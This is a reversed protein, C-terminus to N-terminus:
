GLLAANKKGRKAKQALIAERRSNTNDGTKEWEDCCDVGCFTKMEGSPTMGTFLYGKKHKSLKSCNACQTSYERWFDTAKKEKSHTEAPGMALIVKSHHDLQLAQRQNAFPNKGVM